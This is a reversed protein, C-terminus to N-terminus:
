KRKSRLEKQHHNFCLTELYRDDYPNLGKAKLEELPPNHHVLEGAKVKGEAQCQRCLPEIMRHRKSARTWASNRYFKLSEVTKKQDLERLSLVNQPVHAPCYGPRDLLM